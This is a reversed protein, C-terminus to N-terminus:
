TNLLDNELKVFPYLSYDKHQNWEEISLVELGEILAAGANMDEQLKFPLEKMIRNRLKLRMTSDSNKAEVVYVYRKPKQKNLIALYHLTGYFKLAISNVMKDDLPQFNEPKEAQQITSNKYEVVLLNEETEIIFDADKLVHIKAEHYREHVEDTAWVAKSCDIGYIGNEETLINSM